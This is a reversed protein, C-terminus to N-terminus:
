WIWFRIFVTTKRLQELYHNHAIATEKQIIAFFFLFFLV